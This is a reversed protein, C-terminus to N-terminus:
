HTHIQAPPRVPKRLIELLQELSLAHSDARPNGAGDRDDLLAVKEDSTDIPIPWGRGSTAREYFGNIHQAQPSLPDNNINTFLRIDDDDEVADDDGVANMSKRMEVFATNQPPLSINRRTMFEPNWQHLAHWVSHM